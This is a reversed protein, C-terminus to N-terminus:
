FATPRPHRACWPAHHTQVYRLNNNNQDLFLLLTIQVTRSLFKPWLYCRVASIYCRV